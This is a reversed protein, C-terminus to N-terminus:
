TNNRCARIFRALQFLYLRQMNWIWGMCVLLLGSNALRSFKEPSAESILIEWFGNALLLVLVGLMFTCLVLIPISIKYLILRYSLPLLLILDSEQLDGNAEDYARRFISRLPTVRAVVLWFCWLGLFGIVIPGNDSFYKGAIPLTRLYEYMENAQNLTEMKRRVCLTLSLPAGRYDGCASLKFGCTTSTFADM